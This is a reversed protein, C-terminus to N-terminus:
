RQALPPFPPCIKLRDPSRLAAAVALDVRYDILKAPRPDEDQCWAVNGIADHRFGANAENRADLFQEGVFAIVGIRDSSEEFLAADLSDNGAFGVALVLDAMVLLGVLLAIDDLAAKAPELIETPDRGAVVLERLVEKGREAEDSGEGVPNSYNLGSGLEKAVQEAINGILGLYRTQNPVVIDVNVIHHSAGCM